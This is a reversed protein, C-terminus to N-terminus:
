PLIAQEENMLLTLQLESELQDRIAMLQQAISEFLKKQADSAAVGVLNSTLTDAKDAVKRAQDAVLSALTRAM